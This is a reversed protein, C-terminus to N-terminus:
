RRVPLLAMSRMTTMFDQVEQDEILQKFAALDYPHTSPSLYEDAHVVASGLKTLLSMTIGDILSNSM